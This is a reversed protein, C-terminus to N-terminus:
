LLNLLVFLKPCMVFLNIIIFRRFFFSYLYFMSATSYYAKHSNLRVQVKRRVRREDTGSCDAMEVTIHEASQPIDKLLMFM